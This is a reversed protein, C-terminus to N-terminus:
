KHACDFHIFVTLSQNIVIIFDLYQVKLGITTPGIGVRGVM